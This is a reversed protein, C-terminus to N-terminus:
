FLFPPQALSVLASHVLLQNGSFLPTRLGLLVFVFLGVFLGPVQRFFLYLFPHGLAWLSVLPTPLRALREFYCPQAGFIVNGRKDFGFGFEFPPYCSGVLEVVRFTM